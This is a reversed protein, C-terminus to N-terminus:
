GAMIRAAGTFRRAIAEAIADIDSDQRVVFTNGSVLVSSSRSNYERAEAATLLMEGEHALIPFDNYPIVRQGVARKKAYASANRPIDAMSLSTGYSSRAGTGVYVNSGAGPTAWTTTRMLAALGQSRKVILALDDNHSGLLSVTEGVEDVLELTADDWADMSESADATAKALAEADGLLAYMKAGIVQQQQKDATQYDSLLKEYDSRYEAVKGAADESLISLDQTGDGFIGGMVAQDVSAEYNEKQALATGIMQFAQKTDEQNLWANQTELGSKRAENYAEGMAADRNQILGEYTSLAGAYTHSQAEMSGAYRQQLASMIANMAENGSMKALMSDAESSTIGYYDELLASANVKKGILSQKFESTFKESDGIKGLLSALDRMEASSLGLAAGTNGITKLRGYIQDSTSGFTALTKAIGTLDDYLYPTLNSLGKIRDLLSAARDEGILTTFSIMDQERQAAVSSGTSLSNDIGETVSSVLDDRYSKFVEDEQESKATIGSILGSVGGVAAGIAVGFPNGTLLGASAGSMIGSIIGSAMTADTSGLSSSLYYSAFGSAAGSIQKGMAALGASWGSLAASGGSSGSGSGSGAGDDMRRMTDQLERIEKRTDASATKFEYLQDTLTKYEEQAKTLKIRDAEDASEKYAKTADQVAKKADVLKTQLSAYSENLAKNKTQLDGIKQALTAYEKELESASRKASSFGASTQDSLKLVISAEEAM